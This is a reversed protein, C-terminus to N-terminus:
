QDEKKLNAMGFGMSNKNGFGCDYGARILREDGEVTFPALIGIVDTATASNPNITIKKTVRRKRAIFEKDWKLIVNARGSLDEGTILFHKNLLNGTLIQSAEEEDEPRLYYTSRKGYPKDVPKSIVMPSLLRFSMKQTFVPEPVVDLEEIIFNTYSSVTGVRFISKKLTGLVFSQLFKENLPSSIYLTTAPDLFYFSENKASIREFEVGFTFLKFSKGGNVKFGSDHLFEAFEPSGLRLLDYIASSFHYYFNAGISRSASRLSFRLRM